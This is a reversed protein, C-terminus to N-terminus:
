DKGSEESYEKIRAEKGEVGADIFIEAQKRAACEAV